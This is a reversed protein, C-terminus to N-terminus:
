GGGVFQVIEIEAGEDLVRESWSARQLIARDLEIALRQADLGLQEVLQSVTTGADVARPEGNVRIQFAPTPQCQMESMLINM